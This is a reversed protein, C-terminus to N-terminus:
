SDFGKQKYAHKVIGFSCGEDCVNCKEKEFKIEAFVHDAMDDKVDMNLDLVKGNYHEERFKELITKLSWHNKTSLILNTFIM